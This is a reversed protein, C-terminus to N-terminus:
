GNSEGEDDETWEVYGEVDHHVVVATQEAQQVIWRDNLMDRYRLAETRREFSREPRAVGLRGYSVVVYWDGNAM